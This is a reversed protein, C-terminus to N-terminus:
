AAVEVGLARGIARAKALTEEYEALPDSAATVAGGAQFTARRGDLLVTRIAIALDADGDLGVYGIAGTYVSRRTPELEEIIEMARVKPAGTISGGPFAARIADFATRGPALEADVVGVLHHVPPFSRREAARRVRVSGAAAVRGLDNRALDVIMALEARDKASAELEDALRRDEAETAGRPRTGKIPETEVRSGRVALFREPSASLVARADDLKLYAAYPAPATERLRLYLDLPSVETEVEFRQSLNVEFIDGDLIYQIARAVIGHYGAGDFNRRFRLPASAASSVCLDGRRRQSRQTEATLRRSFFDYAEEFDAGGGAVYWQMEEHDYAAVHPYIGFRVDPFRQDREARAGIREIRRGYDYGLFGVAGGAFPVPLHGREIRLAEAARGRRARALASEVRSLPDDADAADGEIVEAPRAGVFSWRAGGAGRFRSELLFPGPERDLAALAEAPSPSGEIPRCLMARRM